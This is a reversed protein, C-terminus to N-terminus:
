REEQYKFPVSGEIDNIIDKAVDDIDWKCTEETDNAKWDAYEMKDYVFSFTKGEGYCLSLSFRKAETDYFLSFVEFHEVMGMISSNSEGHISRKVFGDVDSRLEDYRYYIRMQVM